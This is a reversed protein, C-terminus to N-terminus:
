KILYNKIIETITKQAAIIYNKNKPYKKIILLLNNNSIIINKIINKSKM